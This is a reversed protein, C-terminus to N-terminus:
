TDPMELESKDTEKLRLGSIGMGSGRRSEHVSIGLTECTQILLERFRRIAVPAKNARSCWQLFNPYLWSNVNKYTTEYGQMRRERKDGIQLWSEPDAETCEIL